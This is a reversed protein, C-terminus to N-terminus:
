PGGFPEQGETVPLGENEAERIRDGLEDLTRGKLKPGRPGRETKRQASYRLGDSDIRWGTYHAEFGGVNYRWGGETGTM